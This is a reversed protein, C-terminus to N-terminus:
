LFAAIGSAIGGLLGAIGGGPTTVQQQSTANTTQNQSTNGTSNTSVGTPLASFNSQLQANNQQQLQRALLPIQQIFQSQQNGQNITQQTQATAAAPSFSLGRSALSNQLVQNQLNSNANITQLGGAEYDTLNPDKNAQNMSQSTFLNALQQQLPSLNPTTSGSQNSTGTQNVTGQTQTNTNKSSNGAFLGALGSIIPLTGSAMSFGGGSVDPATAITAGTNMGPIPLSAM